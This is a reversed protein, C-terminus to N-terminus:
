TKIFGLFDSMFMKKNSTSSNIIEEQNMNNKTNRGKLM